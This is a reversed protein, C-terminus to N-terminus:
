FPRESFIIPAACAFGRPRLGCFLPFIAPQAGATALLKGQTQLEITHHQNQLGFMRPEFGVFFVIKKKTTHFPSLVLTLFPFSLCNTVCFHDPHHGLQVGVGVQPLKM